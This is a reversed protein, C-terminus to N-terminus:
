SNATYTALWTTGDHNIFRAVTKGEITISGNASGDLIDGSSHAYIKLGNTAQSSYVVFEDGPSSTSPLIVGKTDDAGTVVTHRSVIATANGQASGAAAITAPSGHNSRSPASPNGSADVTVLPM